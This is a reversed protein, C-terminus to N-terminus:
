RSWLDMQGTAWYWWPKQTMPVVKVTVHAV